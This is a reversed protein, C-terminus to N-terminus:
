VKSAARKSFLAIESKFNLISSQSLNIRGTKDAMKRKNKIVVVLDFKQSFPFILFSTQQM